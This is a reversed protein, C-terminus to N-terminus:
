SLLSASSERARGVAVRGESPRQTAVFMGLGVALASAVGIVPFYEMWASVYSFGAAFASLSGLDRRLEQRYGLRALDDADSSGEPAAASIPDRM